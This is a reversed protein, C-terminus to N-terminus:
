PTTLLYLIVVHEILSVETVGEEREQLKEYYHRWSPSCEVWYLAGNYLRLGLSCSLEFLVSFKMCPKFM